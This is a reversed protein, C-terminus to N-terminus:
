IYLTLSQGKKSKLCGNAQKGCMKGRSTYLVVNPRAQVEMRQARSLDAGMTVLVVEVDFRELARVLELAYYWMGGVTDTTMLVKM